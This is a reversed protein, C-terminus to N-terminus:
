HALHEIATRAIARADHEAILANSLAEFRRGFEDRVLGAIEDRLEQAEAHTMPAAQISEFGYLMFVAPVECLEAVQIMEELSIERRGSEMRKVTGVSVGFLQAVEAQTRNAHARVARIRAARQQRIADTDALVRAGNGNTMLRSTRETTSVITFM